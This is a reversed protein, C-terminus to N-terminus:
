ASQEGPRLWLSITSPQVTEGVVGALDGALRDLDVEDRLQTTFTALVRAADYKRRYFRRDIFSQLRHRWPNFLAAVALTVIAVALDSSQGTVAGLVAQIAIVGGIYLGILSLTLSGYVLTRNIFVDIDWLRSRTVAIVISIPIPLMVVYWATYVALNLLASQQASASLSAGGVIQFVVIGAIGLATMSGGLLVWRTQRRQSETSVRRYRYIQIGVVVLYLIAGLGNLLTSYPGLAPFVTAYVPSLAMLAAPVILWGTWRPVLRGDPFVLFFVAISLQGFFEVADVPLQWAPSVVALTAIIGGFTGGTLLVLFYAAVLAMRDSGARMFLLLGLALWLAASLLNIAILIAAYQDLSLDISHLSAMGIATLQWDDCRSSLCLVHLHSYTAPIGALFLVVVAGFAVIWVSRASSMWMGPRTSTRM